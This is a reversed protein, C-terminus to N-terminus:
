DLCAESTCQAGEPVDLYKNDLKPAMKAEINWHLTTLPDRSIPPRLRLVLKYANCCVLFWFLFFDFSSLSDFM